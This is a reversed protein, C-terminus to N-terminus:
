APTTPPHCHLGMLLLCRSSSPLFAPTWCALHTTTKHLYAQSLTRFCSFTNMQASALHAFMQSPLLLALTFSFYYTQFPALLPLGQLKAFCGWRGRTAMLLWAFHGAPSPHSGSFHDATTPALFRLPLLSARFVSCAGM